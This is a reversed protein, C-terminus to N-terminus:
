AGSAAAREIVSGVSEAARATPDDPFIRLGTAGLADRLGADRYLRALGDRLEREGTECWLGLDLALGHSAFRRTEDAQESTQSLVGVPVGLYAAEYKTLGGGSVCIDAWAFDAALDPRQVAVSSEHGFGRLRATLASASGSTAGVVV